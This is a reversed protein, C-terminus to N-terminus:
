NVFVHSSTVIQPTVEFSIREGGRQVEIDITRPTEWDIFQNFNFLYAFVARYRRHNAIAQAVERYRSVDWFMSNTFGNADTFRTRPDRLHMTEAIFRRYGDTLARTNRHNFRQGQISLIVDGPLIGAIAAPSDPSVSVVTRLDNMDYGIGTYNHRIYRLQYTAFSRNGPNPFKKLMLPLNLELYDLLPYHASLRETVKSEWILMSQGPEFFRRDFFQYGFELHFAIDNIRVAETPDYVPIRVMRNNRVDYRWVPQYTGLTESDPDFLPNPQYSYFTQIIFDPDVPDYSLGMQTLIRTFIANIRADLVRNAENRVAAFAFTRYDHFLADDNSITQIPMIFRRDQVDELSFFAFVPALQVECIANIHRCNKAFEVERFTNRLNRIGLRLLTDSEAFWERITQHTQLYTGRGNVSLIIDNLQLGAREAPSGPTIDIVVPEGFGWSRNNSIEYAFGLSCMIDPNQAQASGSILFILFFIFLNRKM